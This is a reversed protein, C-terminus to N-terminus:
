ASKVIEMGTSTVPLCARTTRGDIIKIQGYSVTSTESIYNQGVGAEPKRIEFVIEMDLAWAIDALSRLTLNAEGSLQRNILSRHVDLKQALKQQSLGSEKKRDALARLLESRVRGLLRGAFRSRGGIDFRFSTV